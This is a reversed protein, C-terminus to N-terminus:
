PVVVTVETPLTEGSNNRATVSIVVTSGTPLGVLNVALDSFLGVEVPEDSSGEV